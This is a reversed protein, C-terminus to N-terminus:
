APIISIRSLGSSNVSNAVEFAVTDARYRDDSWELPVGDGDTSRRRTRLLPSRPRIELLRADEASAAVADILHNAQAFVFGEEALRYTISDRETDMAAIIRGLREPYAAREIMTPVGSLFRLRLLHFVPAGAPLDLQRSEEETAERRALRVLRGSPQEGISRGWLSFSMLHGFNQVRPTNIVTRRSGRRSSIIGEHQLQSFTQRVTGRSVHHQEMLERESPLQSGPPYRGDSVAARFEDALRRYAIDAM